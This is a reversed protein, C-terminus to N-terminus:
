AADGPANPTTVWPWYIKKLYTSQSYRLGFAVSLTGHRLAIILGPGTSQAPHAGGNAVCPSYMFDARGDALLELCRKFTVCDKLHDNMREMVELPLIGAFSPRAATWISFDNGSGSYLDFSKAMLQRVRACLAAHNPPEWHFLAYMRVSLADDGEFGPMRLDQKRELYVAFEALRRLAVRLSSLVTTADDRATRCLRAIKFVVWGSLLESLAGCLTFFPIVCRALAVTEQYSHLVTVRHHHMYEALLCTKSLFLAKQTLCARNPQTHIELGARGKKTETSHLGRLRQYISEISSSRHILSAYSTARERRPM